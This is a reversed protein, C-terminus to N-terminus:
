WLTLDQTWIHWKISSNSLYMIKKLSWIILKNICGDDQAFLGVKEDRESPEGTDQKVEDEIALMIDMQENPTMPRSPPLEQIDPLVEFLNLTGNRCPFLSM